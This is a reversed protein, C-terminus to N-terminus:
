LGLGRKIFYIQPLWLLQNELDRFCGHGQPRKEIKWLPSKSNQDRKAKFNLVFPWLCAFTSAKLRKKKPRSRMGWVRIFALAGHVSLHGGTWVRDRKTGAEGGTIILYQMWCSYGAQDINMRLAAGGRSIMHLMRMLHVPTERKNSMYQTQTDWKMCPPPPTCPAVSWAGARQHCSAPTRHCSSCICPALVESQSRSPAHKYHKSKWGDAMLSVKKVWQQAEHLPRTYKKVSTYSCCRQLLVSQVLQSQDLWNCQLPGIPVKM